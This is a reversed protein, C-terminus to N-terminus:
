RNAAKALAARLDEITVPKPVIFDVGDPTEHNAQMMAGFGTLMIVPATPRLSKFAVALQDGSMGPMARDVLAVDFTEQGLKELAERGDAAGAATHGDGALFELLIARVQADDDVVLVRLRPLVVPAPGTATRPKTEPSVPLRLTVTTGAGLKTQINIAGSHRQVIGYVMALGLGTGGDGKTTFFPEFCRQRIEETMGTGTDAVEILIHDPDPDRRTRLTLTGGAPLADVANFILNILAERLDTASGAIM